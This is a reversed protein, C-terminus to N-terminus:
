PHTFVKEGARISVNLRNEGPPIPCSYIPNYACYPNYASNFDLIYRNTNNEPLDIYRGAGYTEKGNTADMFPIFLYKDKGPDIFKFVTLQLSKGDVTFHFFGYKISKREEGTNTAMILTDPDEQTELKLDYRYSSEIPYYNLGVFQNRVKETLPSHLNIKYFANKESRMREM